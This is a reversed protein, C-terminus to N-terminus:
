LHHNNVPCASVSYSFLFTRENRCRWAILKAICRHQQEHVQYGPLRSSQGTRDALRDLPRQQKKDFTEM